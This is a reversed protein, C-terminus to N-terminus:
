LYSQSGNKTAIDFLNRAYFEAKDMELVVGIKDNNMQPIFGNVRHYRSLFQNYTFESVKDNSKLIENLHLNM